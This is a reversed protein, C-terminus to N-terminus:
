RIKGRRLNTNDYSAAMTTLTLSANVVVRIITPLALDGGERGGVLRGLGIRGAIYVRWGRDTFM